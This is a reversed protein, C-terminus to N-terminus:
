GEGIQTIAEIDSLESKSLVVAHKLSQECEEHNDHTKLGEITHEVATEIDRGEIISAIIDALAGASLYGSPHGHTIAAFEAAINFAYEKSCFLGM